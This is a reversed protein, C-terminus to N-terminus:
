EGQSTPRTAPPVTELCSALSPLLISPISPSIHRKILTITFLIIPTRADTPECVFVNCSGGSGKIREESAAEWKSFVYDHSLSIFNEVGEVPPSKTMKIANKHGNNNQM